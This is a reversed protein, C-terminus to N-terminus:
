SLLEEEYSQDIIKQIDAPTALKKSEFSGSLRQVMSIKKEIDNKKKELVIKGAQKIIKLKRGPEIGFAKPITVVTSKGLRFATVDQSSM